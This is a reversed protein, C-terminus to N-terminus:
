NSSVPLDLIAIHARKQHRAQESSGAGVSPLTDLFMLFLDVLDRVPPLHDECTQQIHFLVM